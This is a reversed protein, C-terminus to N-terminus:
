RCSPAGIDGDSATNDAVDACRNTGILRYVAAPEGAKGARNIHMDVHPAPHLCILFVPTRARYARDGAPYREDDVLWVCDGRDGCGVAEPRADALCPFLGYAPKGNVSTDERVRVQCPHPLCARHREPLRECCRRTIPLPKVQLAQPREEGTDVGESPKCGDMGLLDAPRRRFGEGLVVTRPRALALCASCPPNAFECRHPHPKM